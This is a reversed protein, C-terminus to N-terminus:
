TARLTPPYAAFVSLTMVPRTREIDDRDPCAEHKDLIAPTGNCPSMNATANTDHVQAPTESSSAWSSHSPDEKKESFANEADLPHAPHGSCFCDRYLKAYCSRSGDAYYFHTSVSSCLLRPRTLFPHIHKRAPITMIPSLTDM